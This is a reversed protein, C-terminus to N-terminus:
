ASVLQCACCGALELKQEMPKTNFGAANSVHASLLASNTTESETPRSREEQDCGLM